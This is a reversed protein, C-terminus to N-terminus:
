PSPQVVGSGASVTATTLGAQRESPHERVETSRLEAPAARASTSETTWARRGSTFWSWIAIALAVVLGLGAAQVALVAVDPFAPALV